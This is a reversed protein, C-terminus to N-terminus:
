VPAQQVVPDAGTLHVAGVRRRAVEIHDLVQQHTMPVNM